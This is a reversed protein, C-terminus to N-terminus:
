REHAFDKKSVITGFADFHGNRKFVASAAKRELRANFMALRYIIALRNQPAPEWVDTWPTPETLRVTWGGITVRNQYPLVTPQFPSAREVSANCCTQLARNAYTACISRLWILPM